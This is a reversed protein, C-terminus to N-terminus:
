VVLVQSQLPTICDNHHFASLSPEPMIPQSVTYYARQHPPAAAQSTSSDLKPPVAAWNVIDGVGPWSDASQQVYPSQWEVTQTNAGVRHLNEQERHCPINHPNPLWPRSREATVLGLLWPQPEAVVCILTTSLHCLRLFWPIRHRNAKLTSYVRAAPGTESYCLTTTVQTM